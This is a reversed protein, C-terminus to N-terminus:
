SASQSETLPPELRASRTELVLMAGLVVVLALLQMVASVYMGVPITALVFLTGTIRFIRPEISLVRRFSLDGLLYLAVGGGLALAFATRLPHSVDAIVEELAAAMIVIGLLM